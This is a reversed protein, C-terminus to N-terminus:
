KIFVTLVFGVGISILGLLLLAYGYIKETEPMAYCLSAGVALLSFGFTLISSSAQSKKMRKLEQMIDDNTVPM